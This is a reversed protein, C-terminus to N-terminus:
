LIILKKWEKKGKYKTQGSTYRQNGDTMKIQTSMTLIMNSQNIPNM